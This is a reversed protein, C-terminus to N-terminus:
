KALIERGGRNNNKDTIGRELLHRGSGGGGGQHKVREFENQRAEGRGERGCICGAQRILDNPQWSSTLLNGERKKRRWSVCRVSEGEAAKVSKRNQNGKSRRVGSKEERPAGNREPPLFYDRSGRETGRKTLQVKTVRWLVQTKRKTNGKQNGSVTKGGRNQM